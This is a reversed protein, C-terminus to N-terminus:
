LSKVAKAAADEAKKKIAYQVLLPWVILLWWLKDRVTDPLAHLLADSQPFAAAALLLVGALWNIFTLLWGRWRALLNRLSGLLKPM